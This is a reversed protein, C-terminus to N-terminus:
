LPEGWSREAKAAAACDLAEQESAHPRHGHCRWWQEGTGPGTLAGLYSGTERSPGLAGPRAAAWDRLRGRLVSRGSM